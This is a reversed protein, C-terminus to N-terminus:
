SSVLEFKHVSLPGGDKRLYDKLQDITRSDIPVGKNKMNTSVNVKQCALNLSLFGAACHATVRVRFIIHFFM